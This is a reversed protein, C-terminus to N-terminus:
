FSTFLNGAVPIMLTIYKLYYLEKRKDKQIQYSYLFDM